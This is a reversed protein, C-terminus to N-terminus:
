ADTGTFSSPVHNEFLLPNPMIVLIAGKLGFRAPADSSFHGFGPVLKKTPFSSLVVPGYTLASMHNLLEM